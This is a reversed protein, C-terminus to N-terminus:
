TKSGLGFVNDIEGKFKFCKGGILNTRPGLISLLMAMKLQYVMTLWKCAYIRTHAVFKQISRFDDFILDEV